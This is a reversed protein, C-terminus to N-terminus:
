KALTPLQVKTGVPIGRIANMIDNFPARNVANWSQSPTRGSAIVKDILDRMQATSMRIWEGNEARMPVGNAGYTKEWAALLTDKNLQLFKLVVDSEYVKDTVGHDLLVQLLGGDNATVTYEGMSAINGTALEASNVAGQGMIGSDAGSGAGVDVSPLQVETSNPTATTIEVPNQPTATANAMETPSAPMEATPTGSAAQHDIAPSDPAHSLHITPKLWSTVAITLGTGIKGILDGLVVTSVVGDYDRKYSEAADEPNSREQMKQAIYPAVVKRVFGDLFVKQNLFYNGMVTTATGLLMKMIVPADHGMNEVLGMTVGHTALVSLSGGMIGMLVLLDPRHVINEEGYLEADRNRLHLM